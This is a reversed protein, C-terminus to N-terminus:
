RMGEVIQWMTYYDTGREGLATTWPRPGASRLRQRLDGVGETDGRRTGETVLASAMPSAVARPVGLLRLAVAAESDVGYFAFSPMNQLARQDSEPLDDFRGRLTMAQLASLGWAVTPAISGFLRQSCRTLVALRSEGPDRRFHEEAIEPLPRGSVWDQVVRAVFHGPQRHGGPAAEVLKAHLEPVQLMVGVVRSLDRNDASFLESSWVEPGINSEGLRALTGAVSEWSFGTADVLSLPKGGLRETYARVSRLLEGAWVTNLERLAQYGFTGRLLSEIEQAFMSPDAIQRYSHALFQVFASWEERYALRVLDISGVSRMANSVMEILTSNLSAVQREVFEQLVEARQDTPAALAVVGVQGQDIRGARGAINWFDSAPMNQGYPYQHSALVVNSVPFNVGAAVTTTAVLHGIQGKELLWEIGARLEDPLGSHHVGVGHALLEVLPFDDGYEAAVVRRIADREEAAGQRPTGSRIQEALSWAHDPRQALTITSGRFSLASATAAALKGPSAAASWTLGLPRSGGLPVNEDVVLTERTTVISQLAVQLNGDHARARRALGIIRDNPLWDLGLEVAQNSTSDLWASVEAANSIFPTLLLFQADRVERNITALLLELKLGRSDQSLTHAEDAVILTLPRGVKEAWGSRLLLDLKEPTCVLVDFRSADDRDALLDAEIGDVELAPSVREVCLGLSSFDTRLRRTIQNVLARTPAVYAVWGSQAAFANLAQLIRFEAILTKGSSTPLSVVVARSGGRVLGQEALAARQPPLLELIPRQRAQSTLANVFENALPNAGRITSWLSNDVIQAAVMAVLRGLEELEISRAADAAALARDFHGQIAEKPDFTIRRGGNITGELLYERVVEATRLMQYCWVFEWAAKRARQSYSDQESVRAPDYLFRTLYSEEQNTQRRRSNALIASIADLDRWDRKRLLLSWADLVSILLETRWDDEPLDPTPLHLDSLLRSALTPEDALWGLCATRLILRKAEVAQADSGSAVEAPPLQGRGLHFAQRCMARHHDADGGNSLADWALLDIAERAFDDGPSAEGAASPVGLADFFLRRQTHDRASAVHAADLAGSLWSFETETM